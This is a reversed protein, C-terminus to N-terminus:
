ARETRERNGKERRKVCRKEGVKGDGMQPTPAVRIGRCCEYPAKRKWRPNKVGKWGKFFVTKEANERQKEGNKTGINGTKLQYIKGKIEKKHYEIGNNVM